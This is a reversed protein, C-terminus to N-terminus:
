SNNENAINNQEAILEDAFQAFRDLENLGELRTPNGTHIPFAPDIGAKLLADLSWDKVSGLSQQIKPYDVKVYTIYENGEEDYDVKRSYDEQVPSQQNVKPNFLAKLVSM